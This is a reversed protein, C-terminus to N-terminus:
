SNRKGARVVAPHGMDRENKALHPIGGVDVSGRRLGLLDRRTGMSKRHPKTPKRIKMRREKFFPACASRAGDVRLFNPTDRENKALHPIGRVDGSGRGPKGYAEELVRNTGLLPASPDATRRRPLFCRAM